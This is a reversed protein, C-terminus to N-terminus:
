APLEVKLAAAFMANIGDQRKNKEKQLEDKVELAALRIRVNKPSNPNKSGLSNILNNLADFVKNILPGAATAVTAVGEIIELVDVPQGDLAKILEKKRM